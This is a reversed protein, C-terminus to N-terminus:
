TPISDGFFKDQCTACNEGTPICPHQSHTLCHSSQSKRPHRSIRGAFNQVAFYKGCSIAGGGGWEQIGTPQFHPHLCLAAIGGISCLFLSRGGMKLKRACKYKTNVAKLTTFAQATLRMHLRLLLSRMGAGKM